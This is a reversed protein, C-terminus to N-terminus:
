CRKLIDTVEAVSDAKLINGLDYISAGTTNNTLAM